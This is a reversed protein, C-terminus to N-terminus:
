VSSVTSNVYSKLQRRDFTEFTNDFTIRTQIGDAEADQRVAFGGLEDLSSYIKALTLLSVGRGGFFNTTRFADYKQLASDADQDDPLLLAVERDGSMNFSAAEIVKVRPDPDTISEATIITVQGETIVEVEAGLFFGSPHVFNRYLTEWDNLSLPSKILVSFIQFIRGDQLVFADEPGIKGQTLDGVRLLSNKPYIVEINNEDFFARFFGEASYLSGKVRFFNGFNRLAERPFTFQTNSVGLAIEDLVFDLRKLTVDEVDRITLIENVIGGFNEDSDLHEYYAELFTILNPYSTTFYEPLVQRVVSVKYSSALRDYDRLTEFTAM